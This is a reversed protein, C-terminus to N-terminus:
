ESAVEPTMPGLGGYRARQESSIERAAAVAGLVTAGETATRTFTDYDVRYLGFRPGFGEQWEFNDILSWHYYGRVDVHDDDRARAIQELSRVVHEARRVGVDTALGSETVVLPLSPYRQSFAVLVDHLGTEHFEYRMAPVWKSPDEAPVCSGFDFGAFCPTFGGLNELLAPRGTIGTRFYYQLGLWDLKGRWDAHDEEPTGDIDADIAGNVVADTYVYHYVYEARDRAAVHEPDTSPQNRFSAIFEAVSLTFGIAAAVGDGDADITDAERIADYIAVHTRVYNRFATLFAAQDQLILDRGPPFFGVGYSALIYNVPENVTAWDDVRDGYRTALLRAHEAIEELFADAGAQVHLGCLDADTPGAPCENDRRPDDVWVPSSFHHVTIMPRIGSAVIAELLEDYHQLAAEDIEDRRPEIRSWELNFRYADLSMERILGVDEVARTYGGSADGVFAKGEGLGDPARASWLHWNTTPNADEIQTAATSAGFVFSGRGAEGALPGPTAFSIPSPPDDSCAAGLLIFTLLCARMSYHFIVVDRM